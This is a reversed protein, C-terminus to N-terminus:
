ILSFPPTGGFLDRIMAIRDENFCTVSKLSPIKALPGFDWCPTDSILLSELNSLETLPSLDFIGTSNLAVSKLKQLNGIGEINTLEPSFAVNLNTLTDNPAAFFSNLAENSIERYELIVLEKMEHLLSLDDIKNHSLVLYDIETGVLPSIDSYSQYILALSRLKSLKPIDQLTTINGRKANGPMARVDKPYIYFIDDSRKEYRSYESDLVDSCVTLSILSNLMPAILPVNENLQLKKRVALELAPDVFTIPDSSTPALAAATPVPAAAASPATPAPATSPVDPMPMNSSVQVAAPVNGPSVSTVEAAPSPAASAPLKALLEFSSYCKRLFSEEDMRYKMIAQKAGIQLKLGGTLETEELHIAIFPTNESLAFNIENRVNMSGVSNPSIFVLFLKCGSLANAIEEPWENGPDIGEDYWINFGSEYFVKIIPFVRASDRHAYSIFIYPEDGRYAELPLDSTYM